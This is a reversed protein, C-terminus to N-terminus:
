FTIGVILPMAKAAKKLLLQTCPIHAMRNVNIDISGTKNIMTSGFATCTATAASPTHGTVNDLWGAHNLMSGGISMMSPHM